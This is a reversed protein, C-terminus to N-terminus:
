VYRKVLWQQKIMQINQYEQFEGAQLFYVSAQDLDALAQTINGMQRQVLGRAKYAIASQPDLSLVRDFDAIAQHLQGLHHYACGRHFWIRSNQPALAIGRHFDVLSARFEGKVMLEIGRDTVVEAIADTEEKPILELAKSYDAIGQDSQGLASYALARDYYLRYDGKDLEIGQTFDSIAERYKQQYYLALGRNLWIETNQPLYDLGRSCDLEAKYYEKLLLYALCRNGYSLGPFEGMTQSFITIAKQYNNSELAEIGSTLLSNDGWVMFPLCLLWLGVVLLTKM